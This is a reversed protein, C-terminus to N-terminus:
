LTSGFRPYGKSYTGDRQQRPDPYLPTGDPKVLRCTMFVLLNRKSSQTGKSQFFRGIFPIDGLIPIKDNITSTTDSVIGGVIVTEGDRVTVRTKIEPTNLIPMRYFNGDEVNGDEDYVRTDYESWGALTMFPVLVEATILQETVEPRISFQIGLDQENELNPQATAYFHANTAEPVDIDNWENEPFNHHESMYVKAVHRDKVTVRPSMLVDASSAQDLAFM